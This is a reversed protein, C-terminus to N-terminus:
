SALANSSFQLYFLTTPTLEARARTFSPPRYRYPRLESRPRAPAGPHRPTHHWADSPRSETHITRKREVVLKGKESETRRSCRGISLTQMARTSGCFELRPVGRVRACSRPCASGKDALAAMRTSQMQFSDNSLRREEKGQDAVASHKLSASLLLEQM